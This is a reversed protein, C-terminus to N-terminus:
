ILLCLGGPVAALLGPAALSTRGGSAAFLRHGDTAPLVGVTEEPSSWPGDAPCLSVGLSSDDDIACMVGFLAALGVCSVIAFPELHKALRV